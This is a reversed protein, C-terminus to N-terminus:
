TSLTRALYNFVTQHLQYMAGEHCHQGAGDISHLVVHEHPARLEAAVAAAQGAFVKDDEGELLLVPTQIAGIDDTTLTYAATSRVYEAFNATGNVWVGNQLGWRANTDSEAMADLAPLAETDRHNEILALLDGPIPPYSAYFSRLGDNCVIAASRHDRSAYRAVLYGGLSYGFHAIKDPAIDPITLAWDVVPGLVNEWDPRYPVKQGRIMWGQGPGDYALFNYGRRLAAAGIVFYGEEATSDFGNTYIVTPRPTGTDDVLFLYGPLETNEFPIAVQKVPGDLLEAAKLLYDRSLGALELVLPDNLPDARRYFEASRYYSSARFFAERASVPDGAKLSDEGRMAIRDALSTWARTWAEEDGEPILATTAVVEGIDAGADPAFGAARLTEFKFADDKFIFEM